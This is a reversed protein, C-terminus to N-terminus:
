LKSPPNGEKGGGWIGGKEREGCSRAGARHQPAGVAGAPQQVFLARLSVFRILEVGTGFTFLFSLLAPVLLLLPLFAMAPFPAEGATELCRGTLPPVKGPIGVGGLSTVAACLSPLASRELGSFPPNGRANAAVGGARTVDCLPLCASIERPPEAQGTIDYIM